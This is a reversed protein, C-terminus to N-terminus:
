NYDGTIYIICKSGNHQSIKVCLHEHIDTDPWFIKKHINKSFDNKEYPKRIPMGCVYWTEEHNSNNNHM